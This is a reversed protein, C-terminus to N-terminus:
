RIEEEKVKKDFWKKATVYPLDRRLASRRVAEEARNVVATVLERVRLLCWKPLVNVPDRKCKKHRDRM